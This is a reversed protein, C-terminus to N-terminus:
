YDNSDYSLTLDTTPNINNNTLERDVSMEDESGSEETMEQFQCDLHVCRPRSSISSTNSTPGRTAHTEQTSTCPTVYSPEEAHKLRSM